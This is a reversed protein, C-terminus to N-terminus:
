SGYGSEPTNRYSQVYPYRHGPRGVNLIPASENVGITQSLTAEFERDAKTTDFGRAGLFRAKLMKVFLIPPYLIKDDNAQVSDRYNTNDSKLVWNRSMYEMAITVGDDPPYPFLRLKDEWFRFSAYITSDLLNRGEVYQWSQSSLPGMLPVENTREWGTQPIMYAWDSPLDYTGTDSPVSTTFSWERVMYEWINRYLLEQGCSTMLVRLQIFANDTSGFLDATTSLGVEPAVRNVTEEATIFRAIDAM